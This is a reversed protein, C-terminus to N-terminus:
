FAQHSLPSLSSSNPQHLKDLSSLPLPSYEYHHPPHSKFTQTLAFSAFPFSVGSDPSGLSPLSNATGAGKFGGSFGGPNQSLRNHSIKPKDLLTHIMLTVPAFAKLAILPCKISPKVLKPLKGNQGCHSSTLRLRRKPSSKVALNASPACGAGKHYNWECSM